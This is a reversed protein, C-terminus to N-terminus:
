RNKFIAVGLAGLAILGFLGLIATGGSLGTDPPPTPTTSPQLTKGEEMAKIRGETETQQVKANDRLSAAYEYIALAFCIGAVALLIGGVEVANVGIMPATTADKVIAGQMVGAYYTNLLKSLKDQNIRLTAIDAPKGGAKELRAIRAPQENLITRTESLFGMVDELRKYLSEDMNMDRYKAVATDTFADWEAGWKARYDEMWGGLRDYNSARLEEVRALLTDMQERSLGPPMADNYLYYNKAWREIQADSAHGAFDEPTITDDPLVFTKVGSGSGGSGGGGHRGHTLNRLATEGEDFASRAGRGADRAAGGAQLALLQEEAQMRQATTLSSPFREGYLFRREAADHAVDSSARRAERRVDGERVDESDFPHPM